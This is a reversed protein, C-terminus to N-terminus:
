AGAAVTNTPAATGPVPVQSLVSRVIDAGTAGELLADATLMLRHAMVAPAVAKIDDPTVFARGALVAEVRACRMLALAGRTSLGLGIRADARTAAAIAIVYAYLEDAVHCQAVEQQAQALADPALAAVADAPPIQPRDYTRLVQEEASAAPYNMDLRLLFRDLQAEPLPYTGEFEFPNQTAIVFFRPPLVHTEGDISIAREEMAQLLASQTKPGTRNIEDVLVVDAFLPGRALEFSRTQANFVNVGTMDSPMLDATCQIRAFRGGLSQALTKALLTKGIGPVGQLLVHGGAIMAVALGHVIPEAGFVVRGLGTQFAAELDRASTM